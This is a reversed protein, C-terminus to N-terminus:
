DGPALASGGQQSRKTDPLKLHALLTTVLFLLGVFIFVGRYPYGDGSLGLRPGFAETLGVLAAGILPSVTRSGAVIANDLGYVSGEEGPQTYQALLASMAPMIGGIAAGTLTYLAFLQWAETVFGQPLYFVAAALMGWVLVRKHGLRDGLRGLLLASLTGALSSFGIMLGTFTNVQASNVLLAAIFLPAFPMIMTRGLWGMFRIAFTYTVGPTRFIHQWDALPNFRRGQRPAPTFNERVGFLVLVGGAFLLAATSFFAVKYGFADYLFGGLTPGLALGTWQGVQLFGMAYGTKERPASAAVLANAASVVGTILGQIARLLVLQEASQAFAMLAIIVAGGFMAREVMPKRGFRDAVAGWLPSALMMTFAQGSFVMAVWFELSGFGGAIGLERIFLPLFPFVMSFGVTSLLQAVFMIYLTRRWGPMLTLM